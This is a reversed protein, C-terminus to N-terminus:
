DTEIEFMKIKDINMLDVYIPNHEGIFCNWVNRELYQIAEIEEIGDKVLIAIMKKKDYVIREGISDIGIIAKNFGDAKIYNTSESM